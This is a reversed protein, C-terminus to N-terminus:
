QSVIYARQVRVAGVCALFVINLTEASALRGCWIAPRSHRMVRQLVVFFVVNNREAAVVWKLLELVRLDSASTELM